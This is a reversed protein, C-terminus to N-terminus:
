WILLEKLVFKNGHGPYLLTSEDFNSKLIEYSKILENKDGGPLKTITKAQFIFEDGTFVIDNVNVFMGGTSHAKCPFLKVRTGGIQFDIKSKIKFDAEIGVFEFGHFISLNKKPDVILSSTQETAIITVDKYRRKITVIGLIHDVHEHTLFIYISKSKRNEILDLFNDENSPDILILKDHEEILYSVSNLFTNEYSVVQM